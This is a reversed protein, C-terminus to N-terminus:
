AIYARAAFKPRSFRGRGRAAGGQGQGFQGQGFPAAGQGQQGQQGGQQGQQGGQQGQQGGQQGQQGNQQGQQGNQQGQQGNQQGQQGNQQGQQGGNQANNGGGGANATVTFRVCDDQAGRQAVPMLVPQHNSSSTMSCVRYIGEPLGKALKATLTGQGDGADNIGKFFAFTEADPPNGPNENGGLDQVTVHTHGVVKGGNLSQPAAYYTVDPNTFTGAQLNAIKVSFDIEKLPLIEDGNKPSIFVASIMNSSAPIDGM